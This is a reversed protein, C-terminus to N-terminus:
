TVSGKPCVKSLGLIVNPNHRDLPIAFAIGERRAAEILAGNSIYTGAAREARHKLGYSHQNFSKTRKLASLFVRAANIQNEDPPAPAPFVREIGSASIAFPIDDAPAVYYTAGGFISYRKHIAM